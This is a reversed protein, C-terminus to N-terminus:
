AGLLTKKGGGLTPSGASGTVFTGGQSGTGPGFFSLAGRTPAPAPVGPASGPKPPKGALLSPVVGALISPALAKAAAGIGGILSSGGAAAATGVAPTVAIPTLVSAATSAAGAGAALTSGATAATTAGAAVTGAGAMASLAAPIAALMGM